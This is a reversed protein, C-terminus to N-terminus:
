TKRKKKKKTVSIGFQVTLIFEHITNFKLEGLIHIYYIYYVIGSCITELANNNLRFNITYM